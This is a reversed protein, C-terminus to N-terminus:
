PTSRNQEVVTNIWGRYASVRTYVAPALACAAGFSVVGILTPTEFADFRGALLPGGSDGKCSDARYGPVAACLLSPPLPPAFGAANFRANAARCTEAPTVTLQASQLKPEMVGADSLANSRAGWGMLTVAADDAIEDIARPVLLYPPRGGFAAPAPKRLHLLAIDGGTIACAAPAVDADCFRPHVYVRDIVIPTMGHRLDVSGARVIVRRPAGKADPLGATKPVCHAATVVWDFSILAGGCAHIKLLTPKFGAKFPPRYQLEVMWPADGPKVPEGGVVGTPNSMPTVVDLGADHVAPSPPKLLFGAGAFHMQRILGDTLVGYGAGLGFDVEAAEGSGCGAIVGFRSAGLAPAAAASLPSPPAAGKIPPASRSNSWWRPAVQLQSCGDIVMSINVGRALARHVSVDIQDLGLDGSPGGDRRADSPTLTRPEHSPPADLYQSSLGAYYFLVLDGPKSADVQRDIASLINQGTACADTLTISVANAPDCTNSTTLPGPDFTLGSAKALARKFSVVDSVASDLDHFAPDVTRDHQHSHAYQNIGVFVARVAAHAPAAALALLAALGVFVRGVSVSKDGL